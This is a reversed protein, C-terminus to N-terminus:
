YYVIHNGHCKVKCISFFLLSVVLATETAKWTSIRLYIILCDGCFKQGTWFLPTSTWYIGLEHPQQQALQAITRAPGHKLDYLSGSQFSCRCHQEHSQCINDCSSGWGCSESSFRRGISSSRLQELLWLQIGIWIFLSPGLEKHNTHRFFFWRYEMFCSTKVRLLNEKHAPHFESTLVWFKFRSYMLLYIVM